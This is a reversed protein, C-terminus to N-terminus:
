GAGAGAPATAPAAVPAAGAMAPALAPVLRAFYAALAAIFLLSVVTEVLFVPLTVFLSAERPVLRLMALDFALPPVYLLLVGATTAVKGTRGASWSAKLDLDDRDLAAATLWVHLRGSVFAFVLVIGAILVAQKVLWLIGMPLLLAKIGAIGGLILTAAATIAVAAVLALAFRVAFRFVLRGYTRLPVVLPEGLAVHRTMRVAVAAGSLGILLEQLLAPWWFEGTARAGFPSLGFLLWAQALVVAAAGYWPWALALLGRHSARAIRMSEVLWGRWALRVVANPM